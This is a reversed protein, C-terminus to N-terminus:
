LTCMPWENCKLISEVGLHARPHSGSYRIPCVHRYVHAIYLFDPVVYCCLQVSFLITDSTCVVLARVWTPNTPEFDIGGVLIRSFM